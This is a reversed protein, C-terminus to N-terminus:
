YVCTTMKAPATMKIRAAAPSDRVQHIRNRPGSSTNYMAM